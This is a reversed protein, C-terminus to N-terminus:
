SRIDFSSTILSFSRIVAQIQIYTDTALTHVHSDNSQKRVELTDLERNLIEFHNVIM